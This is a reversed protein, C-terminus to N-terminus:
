KPSELSLYAGFKSNPKLETLALLGSYIKGDRYLLEEIGTFNEKSKKLNNIKIPSIEFKGKTKPHILNEFQLCLIGMNMRCNVEICPQMKLQDSERFLLADIGLYGQYNSAFESEQLALKLIKATSAIKRRVEAEDEDPLLENLDPHIFTGKYQGNSNTEFVSFGHYKIESDSMIEFQFSLDLLKNLFPEVILYKQQKLVGSILQRNSANLKQKRIIQIGRGSSSVPAKLVISPYVQLLADIEDCSRVIKGCLSPDIFWPLPNDNLIRRLFKLSASREYLAKHEEKWEFIRNKRFKPSCQEKLYKLKFHAAPSWGWPIISDFSGDPLAELEKLSCFSPLDMGLNKLDNLFLASPPNETLIFDSKTCFVAPLIALDREMQQLLEPPMYSFSGNAVALECTPNFYYIKSNNM